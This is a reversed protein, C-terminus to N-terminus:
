AAEIVVAVGVPQLAESIAMAIQKTLREQVTIFLILLLVSFFCYIHPAAHIWCYIRLSLNLYINYLIKM